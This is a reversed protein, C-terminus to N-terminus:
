MVPHLSLDRDFRQLQFSWSMRCSRHLLKTYAIGCAGSDVTDARERILPHRLERYPSENEAEAPLFTLM